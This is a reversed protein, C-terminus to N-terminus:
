VGKEQLEEEWRLLSCRPPSRGPQAFMRGSSVEEAEAAGQKGSHRMQSWLQPPHTPCTCCFLPPRPLPLDFPPSASLSPFPPSTRSSSRLSPLAHLPLCHSPPLLSLSLFLSFSFLVYFHFTRHSSASSKCDRVRRTCWNEGEVSTGELAASETFV